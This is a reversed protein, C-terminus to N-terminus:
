PKLLVPLLDALRMRYEALSADRYKRFRQTLEAKRGHFRTSLQTLLLWDHWEGGAEQMAEYREATHRLATDDPVSEAMYRCLKASKRLAHLGRDNLQEIAFRPDDGEDKGNHKEGKRHILPAAQQTFWSQICRQVEAPSFASNSASEFTKELAQMAAALKKEEAKLTTILHIAADDRRSQLHKRLEKAQKRVVDGPTGNPVAAKAPMDYHIIETQVDLDRVAGAARRVRQLRLDVAKVERTHEAIKAAHPGCGLVDLIRLQAEVRRTGTRLKHVAGMEATTVAVL